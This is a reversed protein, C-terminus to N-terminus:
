KDVAEAVSEPIVGIGLCSAVTRERGPIGSHIPTNVPRVQGDPFRLALVTSGGGDLNLGEAAGLQRLIIATEAETAGASGLRRGDIVLLYLFRGEASLGVASRPHRSASRNEASKLARASLRGEELLRHFGGLANQIAPLDGLDGQGRIAAGGGAYFLLAGYRPDPPSVLVGEAITLGVIIRSEGKKGPVLDFPGGNIGALLGRRRVFGSVRVGSITGSEPAATDGGYVVVRLEPVFLDARLAWFELRPWAIKGAMYDLGGTTEAAFPRWQPQVSEPVPTKSIGGEPDPVPSLTTCSLPLYLVTLILAPFVARRLPFLGCRPKRPFASRNSKIDLRKEM